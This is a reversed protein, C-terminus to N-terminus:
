FSITYAIVDGKLGGWSPRSFVSDDDCDVVSASPGYYKKIDDLFRDAESKDEKSLGTADGNILYIAMWSYHRILEIEM